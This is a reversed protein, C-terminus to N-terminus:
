SKMHSRRALYLTATGAVFIFVILKIISGSVHILQVQPELMVGRLSQGFHTIPVFWSIIKISTPLSFEPWSYGSMLFAPMSYFMLATLASVSDKFLFSFLAGALTSATTFLLTLIIALPWQSWQPSIGLAPYITAIFFFAFVTNLLIYPLASGLLWTFSSPISNRDKERREVISLCFGVIIIQQLIAFLFGPVFFSSYNMNPNFILRSDLEIPNAIVEAKSRIQGKSMQYLMLKEASLRLGIDATAMLVPNSHMFNSANAAVWISANQSPIGAKYVNTPIDIWARIEGRHLAELAEHHNDFSQVVDIDQSAELNRIITQEKHSIKNAIIGVPVETIRGQYYVFSLLFAYVFPALLVMSRLDSNQFVRLLEDKFYRKISSM